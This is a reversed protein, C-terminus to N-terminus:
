VEFNLEFQKGYVKVKQINGEKVTKIYLTSKDNKAIIEGTEENVILTENEIKEGQRTRRIGM